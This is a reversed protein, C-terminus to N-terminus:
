RNTLPLIMETTMTMGYDIFDARGLVAGGLLFSGGDFCTLHESEAYFSGNDWYGLFTLEPRTSPHSTLHQITSEAALVWRDKYSAFRVPDYVYMKILYEYFSDQGGLWSIYDDTFEGTSINVESGVLGPFPESSPPKPSLLYSQARKTLETYETDGTLDSLRTWELVLTGITALGNTTSDDHGHTSFNLDNYPIGTPTQFAYKLSNALSIAQKLLADVQDTDTALYALPGKLLDYGSLMGGLYRITTEFLSVSDTTRTTTYDITPIFELIRSAVDENKMLLATSLAEVASAGWGNRHAYTDTRVVCLARNPWVTMGPIGTAMRCRICNMMVLPMPRMDMGRM